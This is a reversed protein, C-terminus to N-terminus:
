RRSAHLSSFFLAVALLAVALAFPDKGSSAIVDMLGITAYFVMALAILEAWNRTSRIAVILLLGPILGGIIIVVALLSDADSLLWLSTAIGLAILLGM